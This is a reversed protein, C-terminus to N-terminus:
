RLAFDGSGSVKVNTVEVGLFKMLGEILKVGLQKIFDFAESVRKMIRTYIEKVKNKIGVALGKVKAALNNFIQFEDLQQVESELLLNQGYESKNLEEYVIDAFTVQEQFDSKRAKRSRLALYPKSGGGGTKFSVYFMNQKAITNGAKSPSDLELSNKITGNKPEFVTLENAVADDSPEFKVTGTAAEWCFYQRFTIDQFVKNLQGNLYDANIHLQEMEEIRDKEDKTLKKGSDRLKELDSIYGTSSMGWMYDEIDKMVKSVLKAGKPDISYMSRAAEFTSVAEDVGASMLQSGGAKKLSIKKKGSILDTKPTKNTGKWDKNIPLTSAGLQKLDKLGYQAIFAKGLQMSMKDYGAKWFKQAREWEKGQNWKKKNIKKVAVAILSEWDEGKPGSGETLLTQVKEQINQKSNSVPKLQEMSRRYLSM